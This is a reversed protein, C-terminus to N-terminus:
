NVKLHESRLFNEFARIPAVDNFLIERNDTLQVSIKGWLAPDNLLKQTKEIYEHVNTAILEGLGLKKLMGSAFSGRLFRGQLTILPLGSEIAQIATNFGSFGISDLYLDAQLLISKFQAPSVWRLFVIHNKLEMNNQVFIRELRQRFVSEWQDNKSFFILNCPGVRKAIEVWVWDHEPSYKYLNGPCILVPQDQHILRSRLDFFQAETKLASYHSGLNPLKVLKESYHQESGEGEFLDASIFCDISPLGTTEPHGWFVVQRKALRLSALQTTLPHMGIEPYILCDFDEQHIRKVWDTLDACRQHFRTALKQALQTEEDEVTNLSFIHVEFEDRNLHAVFGKTIANWVSHYRIQDSVIGIKIKARSEPAKAQLKLNKGWATMLQTCMSGYLSLISKNDIGQYALHYPQHAGVIKPADQAVLEWNDSWEQQLRLLDTHFAERATKIEHENAFVAPVNLFATSWQVFRNNPYAQELKLYTRKAEETKLAEKQIQALVLNAEVNLDDRALIENLWQSAQTLERREKHILALNLKALHHEGDFEIVKMLDSQALSDHKLEKYALARNFRASISNPDLRLCEDFFRVANEFGKSMLHSIGMGLLADFHQPVQALTHGFWEIAAPYRQEQVAIRGLLNFIQSEERGSNLLALLETQAQDLSGIQFYTWALRLKLDLNSPELHTARLVDALCLDHEKLSLHAQARNLLSQILDHKSDILKTYVDRASQAQGAQLLLLGYNNLMGPDNPNLSQAKALTALAENVRNLKAQVIGLLHVADFHTPHSKLLAELAQLAKEFEQVQFCQLALSFFHTSDNAALAPKSGKLGQALPKGAARNM